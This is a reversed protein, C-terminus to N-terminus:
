HSLLLYSLIPFGFICHQSFTVSLHLSRMFSLEAFALLANKIFEGSDSITFISISFTFLIGGNIIQDLYVM